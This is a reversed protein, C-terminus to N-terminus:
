VIESVLLGTGIKLLETKFQDSDVVLKYYDSLADKHSIANDAVIIGGKRMHFVYTSLYYKYEFKTADLFLMDIMDPIEVDPAHGFLQQVIDEVGAEAFNAAAVDFREKKSEVTYLKGGTKRLGSALWLGSYGISTGIELVKKIDREIILNRLFEGTKHSIIWCPNGEEQSQKEISDLVKKVEQKM